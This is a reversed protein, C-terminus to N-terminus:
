DQVLPVFTYTGHETLHVTGDADRVVLVMVHRVPVVMRGRRALQDVLTGPLTDAAASVLIRDWGGERPWGLVGSRSRVERAWPMGARTVNAAGWAAIDARREVGLVEGDPGVLRALLATTWGSGAGVDLVRAGPPVALLRLMNAVTSPQSCTQGHGIELPRDQPAFARQLRPLFARRPVARFAAAVDDAQM